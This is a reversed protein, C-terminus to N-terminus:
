LYIRYINYDELYTWVYKLTANLNTKNNKVHQKNSNTANELFYVLSHNIVGTM